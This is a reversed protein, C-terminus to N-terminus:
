RKFIRKRITAEAFGQKVLWLRYSEADGEHIDRLAKDPGFYGVLSRQSQRLMLVTNAKLDCRSEIYREIFPGLTASQTAGRPKVLEVAALKAHLEDSIAGLWRATEDDLAGPGLGGPTEAAQGGLCLGLGSM